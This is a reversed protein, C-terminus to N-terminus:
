LIKLSFPYSTAEGNSAKIANLIPMVVGFLCILGLLILGLGLLLILPISVITYIILSVQFNIIQKGEEDMQYVRDKQTAWLIIPVVLGGFGTIFTLLQSLHTVVILSRDERLATNM